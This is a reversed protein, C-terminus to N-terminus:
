DLSGDIIVPSSSALSKKSAPKSEVGASGKVPGRPRPNQIRPKNWRNSNPAGRRSQSPAQRTASITQGYFTEGDLNQLAIAADSSNRFTVLITPRLAAIEKFREVHLELDQQLLRRLSELGQNIAINQVRLVRSHQAPPKDTQASDMYAAPQVRMSFATSSNSSAISSSKKRTKWSPSTNGSWPAVYTCSDTSQSNISTSSDIKRMPSCRQVPDLCHPCKKCGRGPTGLMDQTCISPFYVEVPNAGLLGWDTPSSVGYVGQDALPPSIKPIRCTISNSRAMICNPLHRLAGTKPDVPGETQEMASDARRQCLFALLHRNEPCRKIQWGRCGLWIWGNQIGDIIWTLSFRSIIPQFSGVM